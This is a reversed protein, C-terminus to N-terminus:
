LLNIREACHKHYYVTKCNQKSVISDDITIEKECLRCVGDQRNKVNRMIQSWVRDRRSRVKVTTM